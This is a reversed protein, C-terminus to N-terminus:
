RIYITGTFPSNFSVLITNADSYNINAPAIYDGTSSVCVPYPHSNLNHSCARNLVWLCPFNQETASADDYWGKVWTGNTWYKKNIWPTANDNVLQLQNADVTISNKVKDSLTWATPDTPSWKVKTDVNTLVLNDIAGSKREFAITNSLSDRTSDVYANNLGSMDTNLDNIDNQMSTIVPCSAVAACDLWWSWWELVTVRAWLDALDNNIDIIWQCSMVFNCFDGCWPQVVLDVKSTSDNYTAVIWVATNWTFMSWVIDEIVERCTSALDACWIKTSLANQVAQFDACGSLTDCTVFWANELDTVRSAIAVISGSLPTSAIYSNLANIVDACSNIYWAVMSCDTIPWNYNKTVKAIRTVQKAKNFNISQQKWTSVNNRMSNSNSYSIPM